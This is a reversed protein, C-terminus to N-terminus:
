RAEPEPIEFAWEPDGEGSSFLLVSGAMLLDADGTEGGAGSYVFSVQVSWRPSVSYTLVYGSGWGSGGWGGGDEYIPLLELAEGRAMGARLRRIREQWYEMSDYAPRTSACAAILAAIPVLRGPWM